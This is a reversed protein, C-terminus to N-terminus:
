GYVSERCLFTYHYNCKVTGLTIKLDKLTVMDSEIYIEKTNSHIKFSHSTNPSSSHCIVITKVM